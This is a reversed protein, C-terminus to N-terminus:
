NTNSEQSFKIKNSFITFSPFFNHLLKYSDFEIVNNKIKMEIQEDIKSPLLDSEFDQIFYKNKIKILKGKRFNKWDKIPNRLDEYFFLKIQSFDSNINLGYIYDNNDINYYDGERLNKEQNFSLLIPVLLLLIIKKM